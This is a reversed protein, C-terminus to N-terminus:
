IYRIEFTVKKTVKVELVTVKQGYLNSIVTM